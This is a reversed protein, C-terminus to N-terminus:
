PSARSAACELPIAAPAELPSMHGVDTLEVYESLSPLQSALQEGHWPPLLLDQEGSVVVAPATFRGAADRLDLTLFMSGFGARVPAPCDVLMRHCFAVCGPSARRGLEFRRIARYSLPTLSRPLGVSLRHMPASLVAHARAGLLPGFVLLRELMDSVGTNVLAAGTVRHLSAPHRDAWALITMGGMSHGALVFPEQPRLCARLVSDMDAALSDATYSDADDPVASRGHGRQDYAVVKFDRSLDRIQHHWMRLACTWGHVFVVAPAGEEGFVEAHLRTGDSSRVERPRGHLPHNLECWAPDAAVARADRRRQAEWAAIAAASLGGAAALRGIRRVSRV